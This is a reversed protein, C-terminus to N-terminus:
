ARRSRSRIGKVAQRQKSGPQTDRKISIGNSTKGKENPKKTEVIEVHDQNDIELEVGENRFSASFEEILKMPQTTDGDRYKWHLVALAKRLTILQVDFEMQGLSLCNLLSQGEEDTVKGLPLILEPPVRLLHSTGIKIPTDNLIANAVIGKTALRFNSHIFRRGLGNSAWANYQAEWLGSTCAALVLARAKVRVPVKAEHAVQCFGEDMLARLNGMINNTTDLKREYIKNLDLIAITNVRGSIIQNRLGLLSNSTIDSVSHFGTQGDFSNLITTKLNGPPGLLLVGGRSKFVESYVRYSHHMAWLVECYRRLLMKSSSGQWGELLRRWPRWVVLFGVSSITQIYAIM